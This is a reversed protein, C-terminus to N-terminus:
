DGIPRNVAKLMKEVVPYTEPHVGTIDLPNDGNRIRLFGRRSSDVWAPSRSCGAATASGGHAEGASAAVSANSLGSVRSLLPASATNLDVGVSNM